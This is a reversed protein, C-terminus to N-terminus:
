EYDPLYDIKASQDSCRMRLEQAFRIIENSRIKFPRQFPYVENANSIRCQYQAISQSVDFSFFILRLRDKQTM